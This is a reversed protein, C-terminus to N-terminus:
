FVFPSDIHRNCCGLPFVEMAPGSQTFQPMIVFPRYANNYWPNEFRDSLFPMIKPKQNLMLLQKKLCLHMTKDLTLSNYSQTLLNQNEPYLVIGGIKAEQLSQGDNKAEASITWWRKSRASIATCSASVRLLFCFLAYLSQLFGNKESPLGASLLMDGATEVFAM